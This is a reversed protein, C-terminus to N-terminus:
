SHPRRKKGNTYIQKATLFIKPANRPIVRQDTGRLVRNLQTCYNHINVKIFYKFIHDQLSENHPCDSLKINKKLIKLVDSIDFKHLDRNFVYKVVGLAYKMKEFFMSNVYKLSLNKRSYEKTRIFDEYADCTDHANEKLLAAKCCPRKSAKRTLYGAVYRLAKLETAKLTTALTEPVQCYSEEKVGEDEPLGQM